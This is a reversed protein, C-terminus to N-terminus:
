EAPPQGMSQEWNQGDFDEIALGDPGADLCRANVAVCDPNSRPTNYPHIGCTGCFRHVAVGTNFRYERLAEGGRVLEFHSPPVILQLDARRICMSCNCRWTSREVIRVRFRVAGCHCGGEFWEEASVSVVAHKGGLPM